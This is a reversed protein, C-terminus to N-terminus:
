GDKRYAVTRAALSCIFILGILAGSLAIDNSLRELLRPLAV